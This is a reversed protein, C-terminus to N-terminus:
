KIDLAKSLEAQDFGIITQKGNIITVPVVQKGSTVKLLENMIRKDATVDKVIYKIGKSSLFEKTSKCGGCEPALYVVVNRSAM